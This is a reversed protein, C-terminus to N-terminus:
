VDPHKRVYVAHSIMYAAAVPAVTMLASLAAATTYGLQETRLWDCTTFYHTLLIKFIDGANEIFIVPAFYIMFIVAFCIAAFFMDFIQYATNKRGDEWFVICMMVATVLWAVFSQVQPSGVAEQVSNDAIANNIVSMLIPIIMGFGINMIMFLVVRKVTFTM